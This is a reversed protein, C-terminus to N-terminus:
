YAPWILGKRWRLPEPKKRKEQAPETEMAKGSRKPTPLVDELETMSDEAVEEVPEDDKPEEGGTFEGPPHDTNAFLAMQRGSLKKELLSRFGHMLKPEDDLVKLLQRLQFESIDDTILVKRRIEPPLKLLNLLQTIRARSYGLM